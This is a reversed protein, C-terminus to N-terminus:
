IWAIMMGHFCDTHISQVGGRVQELAEFRSLHFCGLHPVQAHFGVLLSAHSMAFRALTRYTSMAVLGLSSSPCAAGAPERSMTVQNARDIHMTKGIARM